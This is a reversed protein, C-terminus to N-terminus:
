ALQRTNTITPTFQNNMGINKSTMREIAEYIKDGIQKSLDKNDKFNPININAIHVNIASNTTDNTNSNNYYNENNKIKALPTYNEEKNAQDKHPLTSQPRENNIKEITSPMTSAPVKEIETTKSSKEIKETKTTENIVSQEQPLPETKPISFLEFLGNNLEQLAKESEDKLQKLGKPLSELYSNGEGKKAAMESAGGLSLDAFGAIGKGFIGPLSPYGKFMDGLMGLGQAFGEKQGGSGSTINSLSFIYKLLASDEPKSKETKDEGKFFNQVEKVLGGFMKKAEEPIISLIDNLFDIDKLQNKFESLRKTADKLETDFIKNGKIQDELSKINGILSEKFSNLYPNNYIKQFTDDEDTKQATDKQSLVPQNIGTEPTAKTISENKDSINVKKPVPMINEEPLVTGAIFNNNPQEPINAKIQKVTPEVNNPTNIPTKITSLSQRLTELKKNEEVLKAFHKSTIETENGLASMLITTDKILASLENMGNM